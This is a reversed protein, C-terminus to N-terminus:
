SYMTLYGTVSLFFAAPAAFKYFDAGAGCHNTGRPSLRISCRRALLATMAVRLVVVGFDPRGRIGALWLWAVIDISVQGIRQLAGEQKEIGQEIAAVVVDIVQVLARRWQQLEVMLDYQVPV